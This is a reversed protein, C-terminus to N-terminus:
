KNKFYHSIKKISIDNNTRQLGFYSLFIQVPKNIFIFIFNTHNTQYTNSLNLANNKHDIEDVYILAKPCAEVITGSLELIKSIWIDDTKPSLLIYENNNLFSENVMNKTLVCGGVGTIIYDRSFQIPKKCIRYRSYSQLQGFINRKVVRIRSAIALQSRNKYFADLLTELWMDGYIVDDDAYVLIDSHNSTKIANLIKRYPGTNEVFKVEIINSISNLEDVWHPIVKIGEDSLYAEQSIWLFIKDPKKTQHILSWITASCLSLRSSTTTLNVSIM